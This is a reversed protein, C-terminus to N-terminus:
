QKIPSAILSEVGFKKIVNRAENEAKASANLVRPDSATQNLSLSRIISLQQRQLTDIARLMPNEIPTERKNLLLPGVEDLQQQYIRIKAELKVIKALLVLDFDRWSDRSRARSFQEWIQKENENDLIIGAPPDIPDFASQFSKAIQTASDNRAKRTKTM